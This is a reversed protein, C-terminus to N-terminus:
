NITPRMIEGTIGFQEALHSALLSWGLPSDLWVLKCDDVYILREWADDFGLGCFCECFDRVFQGAVLYRACEADWEAPVPPAKSPVLCAALLEGISQGESM